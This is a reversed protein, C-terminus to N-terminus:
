FFTNFRDVVGVSVRLVGLVKSIQLRYVVCRHCHSRTLMEIFIEILATEFTYWLFATSSMHSKHNLCFHIGLM